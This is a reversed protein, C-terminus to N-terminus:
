RLELGTFIDKFAQIGDLLIAEDFGFRSSHLPHVFGLEENGSGLFMYVGPVKKQYYSFDEAIMMPNVPIVADRPLISGLRDALAEDNVVAPYYVVERYEGSVGHSRELGELLTLIQDRVIAYVDDNFTRAIGEMVVKSALINRREGGNLKGISVLAREFPDIRRTMLGQLSAIFHSAALIADAGKHPMAGHASTGHLIVDFECTQAMLPGAKLGIRGQPLDPMIHFAFIADPRPSELVGQEIMPLAGGVSEEAPQFILVANKKLNQRNKHLWEAFGLLMAMHGDHGCAHMFGKRESAFEAGTEEQLSLADMDARFALTGQPQQAKIVAKIGTDAMVTVEDFDWAKFCDLIYDRTNELEFGTEPCRHLRRRHEKVTETLAIIDNDIHM